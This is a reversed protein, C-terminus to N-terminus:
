HLAAPRRAFATPHMLVLGLAAYVVAGAVLPMADSPLAAHSNNVHGGLHAAIALVLSGGTRNYVWTALLSGGTFFLAMVLLYSLPVGTGLFMPIHWFTWLVGIVVSAAFAGIRRQLRPLAFGRWGVEEGFAVALAVLLRATDPVYSIPGERGAQGFFWLISTLLAGPLVLAVVYYRVPVRWARLGAYLERVARRGGERATVFTAAALPGFVGLLAFPMYGAPDGPLLGREALVAPLQLGWTLAFALVFFRTVSPPSREGSSFVTLM